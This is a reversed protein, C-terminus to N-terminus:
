EAVRKADYEAYGARVEALFDCFAFGLGFMILWGVLICIITM